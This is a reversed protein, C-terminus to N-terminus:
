IAHQSFKIPHHSQIPELGDVNVVRFVGEGAVFVAVFTETVAM